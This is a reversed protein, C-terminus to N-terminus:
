TRRLGLLDHSGCSSEIVISLHRRCCVSPRCTGPGPDALGGNVYIPVAATGTAAATAGSADLQADILYAAEQTVVPYDTDFLFPEEPGGPDPGGGGPPGGPANASLLMRDELTDLQLPWANDLPTKGALALTRATRIGAVMRLTSARLRTTLSRSKALFKRWRQFRVESLLSRNKPGRRNRIKKPM